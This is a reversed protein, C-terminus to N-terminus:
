RPVKPVRAAGDGVLHSAGVEEGPFAIGCKRQPRSAIHVPEGNTGKIGSVAPMSSLAPAWAGVSDRPERWPPTGARKRRRGGVFWSSQPDLLGAKVMCRKCQRAPHRARWGTAGNGVM